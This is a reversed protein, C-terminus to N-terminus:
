KVKQKIEKLANEGTTTNMTNQNTLAGNFNWGNCTPKAIVTCVIAYNNTTILTFYKSSLKEKNTFKIGPFDIALTELFESRTTQRLIIQGQVSQSIARLDNKRNLEETAQVPNNNLLDKRAQSGEDGPKLLVEVEKSYGTMMIAFAVVFSVIAFISFFKIM